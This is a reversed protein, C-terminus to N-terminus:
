PLKLTELPPSYTWATIPINLIGREIDTLVNILHSKQGKRNPHNKYTTSSVLLRQDNNLYHLYIGGRLVKDVEYYISIRFRTHM